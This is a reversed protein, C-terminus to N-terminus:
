PRVRVALIPSLADILEASRADRGFSSTHYCSDSFLESSSQVGCRALPLITAEGAAEALRDCALAQWSEDAEPPVLIWPAVIVLTAGRDSVETGFRQLRRVVAETVTPLNALTASPAPGPPYNVLDGTESLEEPAAGQGSQIADVLGAVLEFLGPSGAAAIRRAGDSPSEIGRLLTGSAVRFSPALRGSAAADGLLVYEPSLVVLDGSRIWPLWTDLNADLGLGAHLGLNLTYRGTSEAIQASDFGYATGSGGLLLIRDREGPAALSPLKSAYLGRVWVADPNPLWFRWAVGLGWAVLVAIAAAVVFRRASATTQVTNDTQM